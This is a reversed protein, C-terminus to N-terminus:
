WRPPVRRRDDSHRLVIAEAIVSPEPFVNPNSPGDINIPPVIPEVTSPRKADRSRRSSAFTNITAPAAAPTAATNLAGSVPTM